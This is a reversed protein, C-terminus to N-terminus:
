NATPPPGYTTPVPGGGPTGPHPQRNTPPAVSHWVLVLALALLGLGVLFGGWYWPPVEMGSSHWETCGDDGVSFEPKPEPQPPTNFRVASPSLLDLHRM